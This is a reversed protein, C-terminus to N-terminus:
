TQVGDGAEGSEEAKKKAANKRRSIAAKIRKSKAELRPTQDPYDKLEYHVHLASFEAYSLLGLQDGKIKTTDDKKYYWYESLVGAKVLAALDRDLRSIIRRYIEGEAAINEYRPIGKAAALLTKVTTTNQTPKGFNMNHLACLKWGLPISYPHNHTNVTLLAEPYPMIYANSLYEAMDFSFKFVAVGNKVPNGEEETITHDTVRLRHHKTVKVKRSKGEPREYTQEDWELSVAYLARIANNLQARAEKKDKTRCKAMYDGLSLKVSRGKNVAEATIANEHPLQSTLLTLLIILVKFTQASIDQIAEEDITILVGESQMTGSHNIADIQINQPTTASALLGHIPTGQLTTAYLAELEDDKPSFPLGEIEIPASSRRPTAKREIFVAEEPLLSNNRYNTSM